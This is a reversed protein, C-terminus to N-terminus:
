CNGIGEFDYYYYYYSLVKVFILNCNYGGRKLCVSLWLELELDIVVRNCEDSCSM